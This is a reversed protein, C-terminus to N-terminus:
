VQLMNVQRLKLSPLCGAVNEEKKRLKTMHSKQVVTEPVVTVDIQAGQGQDCEGHRDGRKTDTHACEQQGAVPESFPIEFSFSLDQFLARGQKEKDTDEKEAEQAEKM